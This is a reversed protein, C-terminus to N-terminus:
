ANSNRRLTILVNNLGIARSYTVDDAISNIMKLNTFTDESDEDTKSPDFTEGNDHVSLILEAPAIRCIMDIQPKKRGNNHLRIHEVIEEALLGLRAAKTKEVKNELCLDELQRSIGSAQEQEPRLSVDWWVENEPIREHLLVGSYKDNKARSILFCVAFLIVATLVETLLFAWWIGNVGFAASLGYALPIILAMGRLLTIMVSVSKQKVSQFYNMMVYCVSMGILSASFIRVAPVGIGLQAESNVGFLGLLLEPFIWVFVTLAACCTVVFRLTKKIVIDMGRYDKEGFLLSIIPTMTDSGGSVFMSFFTLSFNCVSFVAIADKGGTRIVVRNLLVSKFFLLVTNIVSSIAATILEGLYKLEDAALRVTRLSRKKSMLYYLEAAFAAAYGIVTALAAGDTGMKFVGMLLLDCALNVANAIVPVASALKPMGDLRIIFMLSPTFIMFFSGYFLYKIYADVLPKLGKENCLLDTISGRLVTGLITVIASVAAASILTLTFLANAKRLKREGIAISICIMGGLGFMFFLAQMFLVVPESINVASFENDGLMRSVIIGDVFAALLLSMTSAITPLLYENFKKILLDGNRNLM